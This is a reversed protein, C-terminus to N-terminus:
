DIVLNFLQMFQFKRICYESSYYIIPINYIIDLNIINRNYDKDCQM